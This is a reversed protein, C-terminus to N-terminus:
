RKACLEEILDIFFSAPNGNSGKAVEVLGTPSTINIETLRGGIIDLGVFLLKHKKIEGALRACIRLEEKAIDEVRYSGDAALNARFDDARPLRVLMRPYPEGNFLFVRRDGEKIIAPLYKQAMIPTRGNMTLTELVSRLNLDRERVLFLGTGGMADLPKFVTEKMEQHFATLSTINASLLHPPMLDPFHLAFIKENFDRLTRPPNIIHVGRAAVLDLLQTTHIYLSNVPPDVRMFIVQYKELSTIKKEGLSYWKRSDNFVEISASHAYLAGDKVLLDEQEVYDMEWGKKQAALLLALSSDKKFHITSIPLM